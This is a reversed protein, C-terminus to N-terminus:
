GLTGTALLSRLTTARFSYFAFIVLHSLCKSETFRPLVTILKEVFSLRHKDGINGKKCNFIPIKVYLITQDRNGRERVREESLM